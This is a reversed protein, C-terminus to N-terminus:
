KRSRHKHLQYVNNILLALLSIFLHTILTMTMLIIVNDPIQNM